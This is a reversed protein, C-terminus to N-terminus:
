RPKSEIEGIDKIDEKIRDLLKYGRDKHIMQRGKFLVFVQVKNNNNLFDKIKDLKFNYDHEETNVGLRMSKLQVQSEKQKKQKEKERKKLQYLYKNYEILQCVPPKAKPVIEILDVGREGALDLAEQLPMVGVQSRDEDLVRVEPVKIEENM